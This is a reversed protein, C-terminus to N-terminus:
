LFYNNQRLFLLVLGDLENDTLEIIKKDFISDPSNM